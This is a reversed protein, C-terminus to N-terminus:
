SHYIKILPDPTPSAVEGRGAGRAAGEFSLANNLRAVRSYNQFIVIKLREVAGARAGGPPSASRRPPPTKPSYQLFISQDRGPRFQYRSSGGVVHFRAPDVAYSMRRSM